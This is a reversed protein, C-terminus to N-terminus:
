GVFVCGCVDELGTLETQFVVTHPFLPVMPFSLLVAKFSEFRGRLVNLLDSCFNRSCSVSKKYLHVPLNKELELLLSQDLSKAACM